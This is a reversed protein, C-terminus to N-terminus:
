LEYCVPSCNLLFGLEFGIHALIMIVAMAKTAMRWLGPPLFRLYSMLLSFKFGFLCLVYSRRFKTLSGLNSLPVSESLVNKCRHGSTNWSFRTLM